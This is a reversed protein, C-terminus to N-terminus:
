NPRPLVSIQYEFVSTKEFSNVAALKITTTGITDFVLTQGSFIPKGDMVAYTAVINAFADHVGFTFTTTAGIFFSQPMPSYWLAPGRADKVMDYSFIERESIRYYDIKNDQKEYVSDVVFKTVELAHEDVWKYSEIYQWANMSCCKSHKFNQVPIVKGNVLDIVSIGFGYSFAGSHNQTRLAFYRNDPSFSFLSVTQAGITGTIKKQNVYVDFSLNSGAGGKNQRFSIEAGTSTNVFSSTLRNLRIGDGFIDASNVAEYTTTATETSTGTMAEPRPMETVWEVGISFSSVIVVLFAGCGFVLLWHKDM